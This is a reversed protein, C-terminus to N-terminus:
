DSLGALRSKRAATDTDDDAFDAPSNAEEVGTTHDGGSEVTQEAGGQALTKEAAEDRRAVKKAEKDVAEKALTLKEELAALKEELNIAQISEQELEREIEFARREHARQQERNGQEAAVQAQSQEQKLRKALVQEQAEVKALAQRIEALIKEEEEDLPSRRERRPFKAQATAKLLTEIKQRLDM